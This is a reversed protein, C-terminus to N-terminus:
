AVLPQLWLPVAHHLVPHRRREFQRPRKDYRRRESQRAHAHRLLLLLLFLHHLFLLLLLHNHAFLYVQDLKIYKLRQWVGEPICLLKGVKAKVQKGVFVLKEMAFFEVLKPPIGNSLCFDGAKSRLQILLRKEFYKGGEDIKVAVQM